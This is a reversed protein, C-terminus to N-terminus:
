KDSYSYRFIWTESERIRQPINWLMTEKINKLLIAFIVSLFGIYITENEIIEKFTFNMKDKMFFESM